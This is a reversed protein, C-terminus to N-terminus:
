KRDVRLSYGEGTHSIGVLVSFAGSTVLDGMGARSYLDDPSEGHSTAVIPVGSRIVSMVATADSSSLEDIFILEPSLTRIAIEIGLSKKYGSLLEVESDSFDEASLEYREDILAVRTSFKGISARKALYRLATTKGVGPPSYILMGRGIGSKYIEFLEEGFECEGTPIRFVLSQLESVGVLREGEYRARGCIGVRIGGPMTIYGEAIRDRERYLAGECIATVCRLLEEGGVRTSLKVWEHSFLVSSVGERRVRIERVSRAGEVRAKARRSLEAAMGRPLVELVSNFKEKEKVAQM